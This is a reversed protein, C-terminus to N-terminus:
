RYYDTGGHSEKAPYMPFKVPLVSFFPVTPAKPLSLAPLTVIQMRKPPINIRSRFLQITRVENLEEDLAHVNYDKLFNVSM